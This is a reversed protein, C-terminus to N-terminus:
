PALIFSSINGMSRTAGTVPCSAANGTMQVRTRSTLADLTASVIKSDKTTGKWVTNSLSATRMYITSVSTGPKAIVKELVGAKVCAAEATLPALSIIGMALGTFFIKKMEVEWILEANSRASDFVKYYPGDTVVHWAM